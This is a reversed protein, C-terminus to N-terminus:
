AVRDNRYLTYGEVHLDKDSNSENLWTENLTLVDMDISKMLDRCEAFSPVLSRINFHSIKFSM